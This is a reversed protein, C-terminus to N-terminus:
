RVLWETAEHVQVLLPHYAVALAALLAAATCWVYRSSYTKRSPPERWAILRAVRARISGAPNGVLTTTLEPAPYPALRSLKIVAAALDLAESANCVAADDAAMETAQRWENEFVAMGPFAVLRLMLKRLNDRRKVHAFEHRLAAQLERENLARKAAPSLWVSSRVIGAATLPPSAVSRLASVGSTSNTRTMSRGKGSWIAVTRSARIWAAAARCVGVAIMTTGCLSLLGLALGIPENASRPELLIFSPVAFALTAGAAVTFPLLRLLFLL